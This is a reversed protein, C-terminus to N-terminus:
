QGSALAGSVMGPEPISDQDMLLVFQAKQERAFEIGRNQARAVGMNKNFRVLSVQGPSFGALWVRLSSASGNDVIVTLDVEKVLANILRTLCRSGTSLYCSRRCGERRDNASGQLGDTRSSRNPLSWGGVVTTIM